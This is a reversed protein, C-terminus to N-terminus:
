RRKWNSATLNVPALAERARQGVVPSLIPMPYLAVLEM